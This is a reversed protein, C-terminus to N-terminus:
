CFQRLRGIRVRGAFVGASVTGLLLLAAAWRHFPWNSRIPRCDLTLTTKGGESLYYRPPLTGGIAAVDSPCPLSAPRHALSAAGQPNEATSSPPLFVTWLTQRVPLNGLTPSEFRLQEVADAVATVGRYIVAVRQPSQSSALALRWVGDGIRKPVAPVDEVSAQVLECGQPVHLDLQEAGGPVVDLTAAGCWRGDTQRAMAVDALRIYGPSRAAQGAAAKKSANSPKEGSQPNQVKRPADTKNRSPKAIVAASPLRVGDWVITDVLRGSESAVVPSREGRPLAISPSPPPQRSLGGHASPTKGVVEEMGSAASANWLLSVGPRELLQIVAAQIRCKQVRFLPLERREGMRIPLRGRLSLRQAGSIPGDLFVTITGDKDQSWRQVHDSGDVVLSVREVNLDKPATVQHQFVYGSTVSLRADFLVELRDQGFSLSLTQAATTRPEHPRTALTWDTEGRPLRYAARPRSESEGWAKLFDAVPIPDLREGDQEECDLAPDVSVGMWRRTPRIGVLEIRPLPINGVASAGNFLLAADLVVDDTIPRPWHFTLLRTQGSEAGVQVTPPADGSLPLLRMRPDVALEVQRLEGEAVHFKFRANVVVSGPQINLWTLQEADVALPAGNAAREQWRVTLRDTPGLEALLRPPAKEFSVGGCATPVDVPPADAPLALEVRSQAVRPIALDFGGSGGVTRMVPRLSLGLRYDGPEAAEFAFSRTDAEWELEIPRGDLSAGDPLLNAGEAPLPIRVRTARHFVRLDYQARLGNVTLRGSVAEKTLEGSYVAALIMWASPKEVPASRRYLEQYFAAPVYVKGGVPKRRADVPVFVRYLPSLAPRAVASVKGEVTDAVGTRNSHCNRRQQQPPLQAAVCLNRKRRHLRGTLPFDRVIRSLVSRPGNRPFRNQRM